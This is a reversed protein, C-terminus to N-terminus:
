AEVKRVQMRFISEVLNFFALLQGPSVAFWACLSQPCVLSEQSVIPVHDSEEGERGHKDGAHRRQNHFVAASPRVLGRQKPEGDVM